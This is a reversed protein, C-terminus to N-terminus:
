EEVTVNPSIAGRPSIWRNTLDSALSGTPSDPDAANPDAVAQGDQLVERVLSGIVVATVQDNSDREPAPLWHQLVAREFRQAVFPGFSEPESMPLGYHAIAKDENWSTAIVGDPPALYAAKLVPDTLWSLRIERVRAPDGNAIVSAPLPIQRVAHLWGDYGLRSLLDLGNVQDAQGAEPRWRLVTRETLQYVGGDPLQLRDSLPRGLQAEGGLRQYETWMPIGGDDTMRYGATGSLRRQTDDESFYRGGLVDWDRLHSVVLGGAADKWLVTGQGLSAEVRTDITSDSIRTLTNSSLGLIMLSRSGDSADEHWLLTHDFAQLASRSAADGVWTQMEGTATDLARVISAPGSGVREDWAVMQGVQVPRGVAGSYLSAVQESSLDYRRIGRKSDQANTPQVVYTIASDTATVSSIAGITWDLVSHAGSTLDLVHLAQMDGSSSVWLVRDGHVVLETYNGPVSTVRQEDGTALAYMYIDGYAPDIAGKASMWANRTDIWAVHKAGLAPDFQEGLNADGVQFALDVEADYGRVRRQDSETESWVVVDGVISASAVEGSAPVRIAGMLDTSPLALMAASGDTALRADTNPRFFYRAPDLREGTSLRELSLHLHPFAETGQGGLSGVWQGALVKSGTALNPALRDMHLLRVRLDSSKNDIILGNPGGAPDSTRELTGEIPAFVPQGRGNSPADPVILDWALHRWGFRQREAVTRDPEGPSTTWDAWYDASVNAHALTVGLPSALRAVSAGARGLGPGMCDMANQFRRVYEYGDVNGDSAGTINGGGDIAGFYAAAIRDATGWRSRLVRIHEAARQLNTAVDFPDDGQRFKDPMLQMLGMAGAPSVAREGSGEVVMLAGVVDTDVGVSRAAGELLEWYQFPRLCADQGYVVSGSSAGRFQAVAPATPAASAATLTATAQAEVTTATPSVTPSGAPTSTVAAAPSSAATATPTSTHTITPTPTATGRGSRPTPTRTAPTSGPQVGAYLRRLAELDAANPTITPPLTATAGAAQQASQALAASAQATPTLTAGTIPTNQPASTSRATGAATTPSAAAGSGSPNVQMAQGALMERAAASPPFVAGVVVLAGIALHLGAGLRTRRSSEIGSQHRVV